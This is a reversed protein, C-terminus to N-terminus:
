FIPIFGKLDIHSYSASWIQTPLFHLIVISKRRTEDLFVPYNIAWKIRLKLNSIM